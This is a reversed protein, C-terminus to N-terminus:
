GKWDEETDFSRKVTAWLENFEKIPMAIWFAAGNVNLSTLSEEKGNINYNIPFYYMVYMPNIDVVSKEYKREEGKENVILWVPLHVFQPFKIQESM